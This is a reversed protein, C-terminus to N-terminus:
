KVQRLTKAPNGVVVGCPDVDKTVVAGMGVVASQGISLFKEHTGHRLIASTGIYALDGIVVRGNCNVRPAFTVCDGVVCDHAIYSYINAHFHKGIKIDSTFIVNSLAIIGEGHSVSDYMEVSPHIVDIFSMEKSECKVALRMRTSPDAIAITVRCSLEVARAFSIVEINNKTQGILEENDEIFFINDCKDYLKAVVPLVERGFGDSGYIGINFM